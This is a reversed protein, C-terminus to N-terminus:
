FANSPVCATWDSEVPCDVAVDPEIGKKNIDNHLPTEYRAVTVAIGSGDSLETLTQVVGKGFTKEGILKARHNDKLCGALIESASATGKNVLLVLPENALFGDRSTDYEDPIGKNNVVYVIPSGSKLFYRAVDVGGPFYGGPNNRLDLVYRQAGKSKLDELAAFADDATNSNFQKVRIYGTKGDRLEARVSKLKLAQRKLSIRIDDEAARRLTLVVSTGPAGRVRGAAEDPSLGALDEGDIETIADNPKVGGRFAPSDDVPSMVVIEGDVRAPFLEIGVGAVEGTAASTISGYQEPSLFRTYVDDLKALMLRIGEYAQNMDHYQHKVAKMRIKFWDQNNFTRDVFGQDVIRWAEAVLKQEESLAHVPPPAPVVQTGDWSVISLGLGFVATAVRALHPGPRVRHNDETCTQSCVALPTRRTVTSAITPVSLIFAM